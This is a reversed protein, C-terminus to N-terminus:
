PTKLRFHKKIRNETEIFKIIDFLNWQNPDIVDGILKFSEIGRIFCSRNNLSTRLKLLGTGDYNDIVRQFPAVGSRISIFVAQREMGAVANGWYMPREPLEKIIINSIWFSNLMDNYLYNEVIDRHFVDFGNWKGSLKGNLYGEM